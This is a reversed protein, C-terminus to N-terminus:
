DLHLWAGKEYGKEGKALPTIVLGWAFQLPTQQAERIVASLDPFFAQLREFARKQCRHVLEPTVQQRDFPPEPLVGALFAAEPLTLEKPHKGFYNRAAALIGDEGMGFRATNLYLELIREKTLLKEMQLALFIEAVKRSLTRERSLFLYRAVQMTITSGGQKFRLARINKRMARHLALWDVGRHSYFHGDESAIVAYVMVEAIETLPVFNRGFSPQAAVQQLKPLARRAEKVGMTVLWLTAAVLSLLVALAVVVGRWLWRRQRYHVQEEPSLKSQAENVVVCLAGLLIAAALSPASRTSHLIPTDFLGAVMLGLFAGHSGIALAFGESSQPLARIAFRYLHWYRVAVLLFLALGLLGLEATLNLFLNKAEVNHPNFQELLPTMHERQKQPYSNLGSGLFPHEAIVRVATQWIAVRGWFSRDDPNGILNGKTRVLATGVLLGLALFGLLWRGVRQKSFPSSPSFALYGLAATLGLWGARSYTFIMALFMVSATALWVYRWRHDDEKGALALTVPFGILCLPYLRIPNGLTGSSRNGFSPTPFQEFSFAYYVVAYVCQQAVILLLLEVVRLARREGAFLVLLFFSPFAAFVWLVETFSYVNVTSLFFDLLFLKSFLALSDVFRTVPTAVRPSTFRQYFWRILLVVLLGYGLFYAKAAENPSLQSYANFIGAWRFSSFLLSTLQELPYSFVTRPLIHWVMLCVLAIDVVISLRRFLNNM